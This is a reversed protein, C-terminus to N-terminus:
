ATPTSRLVRLLEILKAHREEGSAARVAAAAAQLEESYVRGSVAPMVPAMINSSQRFSASLGVQPQGAADEYQVASFQIVARLPALARGPLETGPPRPFNAPDAGEPLPSVWVAYSVRSPEGEKDQWYPALTLVVSMNPLTRARSPAAEVAVELVPAPASEQQRTLAAGLLGLMREDAHLLIDKQEGTLDFEEFVAEPSERLRRCLDPRLAAAILLEDIGPKPSSDM